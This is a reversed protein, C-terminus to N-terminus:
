GSEAEPLLTERSLYFGLAASLLVAPLVRYGALEGALAVAGLPTRVAGAIWAAGGALAMVGPDLPAPLGRALAAGLLGGLVLSPTFPGGYGGLALFLATLFFRALFVVAVAGAPVLPGAFVELWGLGDGLAEPLVLVLAGLVLGLFAHRGWYPLVRAEKRLWAFLQAWVNVLGGILAGLLLAAIMERGEIRGPHLALLPDYGFFAGYVAFGSFAGILAPTLHRAEMGLDRYFLEISFLAGALPAHFAAALGAALGAHALARNEPTRVGRGLGHGLVAMPAERGLVSGAGLELLSGAVYRLQAVVELPMGRKELLLRSLGQNSGILSALLYILPFGVLGLWPFPSLFVQSLGGEGSPGPPFYGLWDGLFLRSFLRLAGTIAAALLGVAAGVLAYAFLARPM